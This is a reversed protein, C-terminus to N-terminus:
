EHKQMAENEGILCEELVTAGAGRKGSLGRESVIGKINNSSPRNKLISNHIKIRKGRIIRLKSLKRREGLLKCFDAHYPAHM